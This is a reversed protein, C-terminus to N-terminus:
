QPSRMSMLTPEKESIFWTCGAGSGVSVNFINCKVPQDSSTIDIRQGKAIKMQMHLVPSQGRPREM